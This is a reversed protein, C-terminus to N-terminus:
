GSGRSSWRRGERLPEGVALEVDGVVAEVAVDLGAVAVADGDVPLALGAVGAADGVGLQGGLDLAGGVHEGGEADALAVADRDVQRHDGLGDDGHEGDGPEAGDVRDDEAAEAGVAQAGADVVGLGLEDDGGVAAPALALDERELGGDVRRQRGRSPSCRGDLVHEDDLAALVVDVPGLAAVEPPVVGDGAASASCSACAKWASFGSKM